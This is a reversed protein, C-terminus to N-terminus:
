YVKSKFSDLAKDVQSLAREMREKYYRRLFDKLPEKISEGILYGKPSKKVFGIEQLKHLYYYITKLSVSFQEDQVRFYRDMFRYKLLMKLLVVLAKSKPNGLGLAVILWKTLSDLDIKVSSDLEMERLIIESKIYDEM